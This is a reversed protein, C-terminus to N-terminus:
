SEGEWVRLEQDYLSSKGTTELDFRVQEFNTNFDGEALSSTYFARDNVEKQPLVEATDVPPIVINQQEAQIVDSPLTIGSDIGESRIEQESSSTADSVVWGGGVQG